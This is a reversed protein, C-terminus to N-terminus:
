ELAGDYLCVPLCGHGYGVYCARAKGLKREKEEAGWGEAQKRPDDPYKTQEAPEIMPRVSMLFVVLEHHLHVRRWGGVLSKRGDGGDGADWM